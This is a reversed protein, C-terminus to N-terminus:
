FMVKLTVHLYITTKYDNTAEILWESYLYITEFIGRM